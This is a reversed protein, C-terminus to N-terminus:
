RLGAIFERYGRPLIIPAEEGSGPRWDQWYESIRCWSINEMLTCDESFFERDQESQHEFIDRLVASAMGLSASSSSYVLHYFKCRIVGPVDVVAKGNKSRLLEAYLECGFGGGNRYSSLTSFHSDKVGLSLSILVLVDDTFGRGLFRFIQALVEQGAINVRAGLDVESLSKVGLSGSEVSFCFTNGESFESNITVLYSRLAKIRKVNDDIIFLKAV